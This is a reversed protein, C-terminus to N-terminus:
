MNWSTSVVKLLPKLARAVLGRNSLFDELTKDDYTGGRSVRRWMQVIEVLVILNISGIILLFLCSVLTGIVAGTTRFTPLNKDIYATSLALVVSLAVVITSHGLSFFFGVAVPRKGDQMLKRTTNDIAAIHDADVAHRLGVSYALLATPLLIPYRSAAFLTLGWAVLNFALLFGYVRVVRSRLEPSSALLQRASTLVSQGGVPRIPSRVSALRMTDSNCRSAIVVASPKRRIVSWAEPAEWPRRDARLIPSGPLDLGPPVSSTSTDAERM